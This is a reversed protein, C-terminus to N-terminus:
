VAYHNIYQIIDPDTEMQLILIINIECTQMSYYIFFHVYLFKTFTMHVHAELQNPAYIHNRYLKSLVYFQKIHLM